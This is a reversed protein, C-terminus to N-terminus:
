DQEVYNQDAAFLDSFNLDARKDGKIVFTRTESGM